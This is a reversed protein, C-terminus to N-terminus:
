GRNTGVVLGKELLLHCNVDLLLLVHLVDLLVDLREGSLRM